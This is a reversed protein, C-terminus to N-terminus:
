KLISVWKDFELRQLWKSPFLFTREVHVIIGLSEKERFCVDADGSFKFDLIKVLGLKPIEVM